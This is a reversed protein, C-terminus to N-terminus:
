AARAREAARQAKANASMLARTEPSRNRAASSMAARHEASKPKGRLAAARRACAKPSQSSLLTQPSPKHGRLLMTASMKACTEDSHKRGRGAAAIKAKTSDSTPPRKSGRAATATKAIRAKRQDPSMADWQNRKTGYM